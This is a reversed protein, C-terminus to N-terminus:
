LAAFDQMYWQKDAGICVNGRYMAVGDFSERSTEFKRCVIGDRDSEDILNVTGRSGTDRNAWSLPVGNSNDLNAASIANRITNADSDQTSDVLPTGAVSSTLLAADADVSSVGSASVCANLPLGVILVTM